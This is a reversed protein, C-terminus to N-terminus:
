RHEEREKLIDQIIEIHFAAWAKESFHIIVSITLSVLYVLSFVIWLIYGDKFLFQQLQKSFLFFFWPLSTVLIPIIGSGNKEKVMKYFILKLTKSDFLQYMNKIEEIEKLEELNSISQGKKVTKKLNLFFKHADGRLSFLGVIGGESNM